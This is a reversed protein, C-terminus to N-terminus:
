QSFIYIGKMNELEKIMKELEDALEIHWHEKACDSAKQYDISEVLLIERQRRLQFPELLTLIAERKGAGAAHHIVTKGDDDPKRLFEFLQDQPLCDVICDIAADLQVPLPQILLLEHLVSKDSLNDCCLVRLRQEPAISNLIHKASVAFGLSFSEYIVTQCVSDAKKLADFLKDSDVNHLLRKVIEDHAGLVALDIPTCGNADRIFIIQLWNKQRTANRMLMVMRECGEEAAIHLPTQSFRGKHSLLFFRDTEQSTEYDLIHELTDSCGSRVASHIATEGSNDWMQLIEHWHGKEVSGLMIKMLSLHGKSAAISIPTQGLLNQWKLAILRSNPSLRQLIKESILEDDLLAASHLITNNDDRNRVEDTVRFIDEQEVISLSKTLDHLKTANLGQHDVYSRM